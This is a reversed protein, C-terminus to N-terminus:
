EIGWQRVLGPSHCEFIYEPPPGYYKAKLWAELGLGDEDVEPTVATAAM